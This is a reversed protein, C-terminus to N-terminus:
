NCIKILRSALQYANLWNQFLVMSLAWLSKRAVSCANADVATKKKGTLGIQNRATRLIGKIPKLFIKLSLWEFRIKFYKAHFAFSTRLPKSKLFWSIKKKISCIHARFANWCKYAFSCKINMIVIFLLIFMKQSEDKARVRRRTDFISVFSHRRFACFLAHIQRTFLMKIFTFCFQTILYIWLLFHWHFGPYSLFHSTFLCHLNYFIKFCYPNYLRIIFYFM